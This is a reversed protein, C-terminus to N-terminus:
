LALVFECTFLSAIFSTELKVYSYNYNKLGYRLLYFFSYLLLKSISYNPFIKM